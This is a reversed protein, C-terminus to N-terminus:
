RRGSRVGGGGGFGGRSGGGFSGGGGFGGSRSPSSFNGSRSSNSPRSYTPTNRTSQNSSRNFSSTRRTRTQVDTNSNNQGRTYGRRRTTLTQGNSNIGTGRSGDLYNGRNYRSNTRDLISTRNFASTRSTSVVDGTRIRSGRGYGNVFTGRNSNYRVPHADHWCPGCGWGVWHYPHYWGWFPGYWSGWPRWGWGFSWGWSWYYPDYYFFPDAYLYDFAGYGYVLDWYYPSSVYVGVQPSYFRLIQRSYQYDNEDDFIDSEDVGDITDPKTGDSGDESYMYRRNYEDEDRSSTNYVEVDANGKFVLEPERAKTKNEVKVETKQEKSKEPFFYLDDQAIISLQTLALMASFIVLRKM